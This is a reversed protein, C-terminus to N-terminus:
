AVNSELLSKSLSLAKKMYGRWLVKAIFWLAPVSLVSRSNFAYRWTVHTKSLPLPEFWWEGKASTTLFRLSGTFDSVTYSFYEPYTHETLVEKATSGDSLHVTRTQGAADWAGVQDQTRTVAPLVGYGTFISTLEIPVIYEFTKIQDANVETSVTTALTAM